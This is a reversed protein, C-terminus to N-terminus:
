TATFGPSRLCRGGAAIGSLSSECGRCHRPSGSRTPSSGSEPVAADWFAAAVSFRPSPARQCDNRVPAPAPRDRDDPKGTARPAPRRRAQNGIQPRGLIPSSQEALRHAPRANARGPAPPRRPAAPKASPAPSRPVAARRSAARAATAATPFTRMALGGAHDRRLNGVRFRVAARSRAM